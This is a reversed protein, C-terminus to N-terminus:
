NLSWVERDDDADHASLTVGVAAGMPRVMSTGLEVASDSYTQESVHQWSPHGQFAAIADARGGGWCGQLDIDEVSRSRKTSAVNIHDASASLRRSGRYLEPRREYVDCLQASASLRDQLRGIDVSRDHTLTRVVAFQQEQRDSGAQFPHFDASLFKGSEFGVKTKAAMIFLDKGTKQYDHYLQAPCLATKHRRFMLFFMHMTKSVARLIMSLPSLLDIMPMLVGDITEGWLVLDTWAARHLVNPPLSYKLASLAQLFKVAEPVNQDDNPTLMREAADVDTGTDILIAKTQV